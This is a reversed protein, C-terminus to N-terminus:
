IQYGITVVTTTDLCPQAHLRRELDEGELLEIIMFLGHEPDEGVDFCQVIYDSEIRAAARAERRFRAIVEVQAAYAPHILKLAVRKGIELHVAEYVAGMAGTGLLRVLQYRDVIAGVVRESRM